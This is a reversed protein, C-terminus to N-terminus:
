RWGLAVALLVAELATFLIAWSLANIKNRYAEGNVAFTKAMDRLRYHAYWDPNASLWEADYLTAPIPDLRYDRLRFAVFSCATSLGWAVVTAVFLPRPIHQRLAPGLTVIISSISFVTVIKADLAVYWEALTQVTTVSERYALETTERSM